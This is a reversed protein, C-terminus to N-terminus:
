DYYNTGLEIFGPYPCGNSTHAHTCHVGEAGSDDYFQGAIVVQDGTHAPVWPALSTNHDVELTEGTTARVELHEHDGVQAPESLVTADFVVEAGAQGASAVRHFAQDDAAAHGGCAALVLMVAALASFRRSRM